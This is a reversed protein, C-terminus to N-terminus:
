GVISSKPLHLTCSTTPPFSAFLLLGLNIGLISTTSMLELQLTIPCLEQRCYYSKKPYNGNPQPSMLTSNNNGYLEIHENRRKILILSIMITSQEMWLTFYLTGIWPYLPLIVWITNAFPTVDFWALKHHGFSSAWMNSNSGDTNCLNFFM